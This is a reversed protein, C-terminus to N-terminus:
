PRHIIRFHDLDAALDRGYDDVMRAAVTQNGSIKQAVLSAAAKLAM